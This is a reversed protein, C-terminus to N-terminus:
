IRRCSGQRIHDLDQGHVANGIHISRYWVTLKTFSNLHFIISLFIDIILKEILKVTRDCDKRIIYRCILRTSIKGIVVINIIAIHGFPDPEGICDPKAQGHTDRINVFSLGTLFSLSRYTLADSEHFRGIIIGNEM